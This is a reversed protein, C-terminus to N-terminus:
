GEEGKMKVLGRVVARAYAEKLKDHVGILSMGSVYEGCDNGYRALVTPRGDHDCYYLDHDKFRGLYVCTANLRNM